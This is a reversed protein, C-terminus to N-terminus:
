GSTRPTTGACSEGLPVKRRATRGDVTIDVTACQKVEFYFGGPYSTWPHGSGCPIFVVETTPPNPSSAWSVALTRSQEDPVSVVVKAGGRVSVPVKAFYRLGPEVSEGVPASPSLRHFVVTNLVRLGGSGPADHGIIKECSTKQTSMTPRTSSSSENTTPSDGATSSAPAGNDSSESSSCAAALGLAVVATSPGLWRHTSM